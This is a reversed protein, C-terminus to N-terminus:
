CLNQSYFNAVKKNKMEQVALRGESLFHYQLLGVIIRGWHSDTCYTTIVSIVLKNKM